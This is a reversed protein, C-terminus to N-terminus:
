VNRRQKLQLVFIGLVFWYLYSVLYFDNVNSVLNQVNIAVLFLTIFTLIDFGYKRFYIAWTVLFTLCISIYFILAIYGTEFTLKRYWGDTTGLAVKGTEFEESHESYFRTAVHGATGLGLGFPEFKLGKTKNWLKVRTQEDNMEATEVSSTFVWKVLSIPNSIYFGSAIGLILCVGAIHSVQKWKKSVIFLLILTFGAAIIGGRSISLFLSFVLIGVYLLYMLKAEKLYKFSFYLLASMVVTSFVVPTWFISTMRLVFYEAPMGKTAINLFYMQFTPFVFYLVIGLASVFVFFVFIKHMLEMMRDISNFSISAIFYLIMPLYTLRISYVSVMLNDSNILGVFLNYFLYFLVFKDLWHFTAPKHKMIGYLWYLIVGLFFLEPLISFILQLNSVAPKAGFALIRFTPFFALVVFFLYILNKKIYNVFFTM